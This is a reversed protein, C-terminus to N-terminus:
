RQNLIYAAVFKKLILVRCIFKFVFWSTCLFITLGHKISLKDLRCTIHRSLVARVGRLQMMGFKSILFTIFKCYKKFIYVLVSHIFLKLLPKQIHGSINLKAHLKPNRRLDGYFRYICLIKLFPNTSLTEISAISSNTM